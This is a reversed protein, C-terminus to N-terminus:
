IKVHIASFRQVSEPILHSIDSDVRQRIRSFADEAIGSYKLQYHRELVYKYIFSSRSSLRQALQSAKSTLNGRELTNGAPTFLYQQPNASSISVDRDKAAELAIHTTKLEYELQEISELFAYTKTKGDSDKQEYTRGALTALKWVDPPVGSALSPYGGAEYQMAHQYDFDNLLRALRSAKLACNRLPIENLEVNRLIEESLTLAEALAKATAPIKASQADNM